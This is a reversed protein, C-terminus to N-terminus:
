QPRDPLKETLLRVLAAGHKAVCKEGIGHVALLEATNSPRKSALEFLQRDTLVRFAPVRLKKSTLLRWRRLADVLARPADVPALARPARPRRGARTSRRARKGWKGRPAPAVTDLKGVSLEPALTQTPACMDCHGCAKGADARDGFHRILAGMRCHSGQVFGAVLELQELRHARQRAYGPRFDREGRSVRDEADIVAGGHVWLKELIKDLLDTQKRMRAALGERPVPQSSLVAHLRELDSVPPYDRELFFEHTRRDTPGHLLIARSPLGDRGARGIEQYYGELSSPLATHVVTRVDRKDIGMGFAVTAVICALQGSLFRAQIRAREESPLGAHYAAARMTGRLADAVHEADKRTPAYVIAPLRGPQRLCALTLAARKGKACSVVEIALNVRRFGLIFRAAAPVALQEVIDRQVVPTATATLAVIPTPRLVALRERLMRYDPRFDHGWQSICHAEDIAILTPPLKALMAPFGPVGLREPAIFLFDLERRLYRACVDRAAARDRGSHIREARLGLECLRACQDDILAILPSIVITTGGRALGPLQYCLSKGAGTPMVVLVDRGDTVAQCVEQQHPRFVAHGFRQHLLTSLGAVPTHANPEAATSQQLSARSDAGVPAPGSRRALSAPLPPSASSRPPASGSASGGESGGSSVSTVVERVYGEIARMFPEFPEEGREMRRLRLEWSGTMAASKVQVHVADILAEGVATCALNKGDRVLYLRAILTEITAARTAPTGLGSERLADILSKDDLTRGATEMATLLTGETFPRPPQTQKPQAAVDVVRQLEGEALGGPIIPVPAADPKRQSKRELVTWGPEELSTGRTVFLDVPEGGAGPAVGASPAVETFVTTVAEVQDAHWAMLLRRCVLDYLKAEPSGPALRATESTPILAHHDRVKADDVFRKGLAREGSGQALLGAYAPALTRVIEPLLAAVQQSLHRSDTRPYSLVKHKEYLTQAVDLTQKATFGFLRNAHRQLETLDYLSPPQTRRLNREIAAVRAQGERVRKVIAQARVGDIPLRARESRPVSLKGHANRLGTEPRPYWTGQYRGRQGEFTALVELYHEPVFARIQRDREVVMALTPTQVRGVSFLTGNSLTYARSLNMGVLWDARSRARAAAALGDYRTGPQLQAFATRIADQTLSSIWLRQWPKRCGAREYIYRFILEGERGADTAAVVSDTSPDRLLREVIRYQDRGDDLVVLPFQAPLMPLSAYAWTKWGPNIEHPQALGVLHGIAWTVRYGAGEFYGDHRARAGLVAALDRAVSPKEALVVIVSRSYGYLCAVALRPPPTEM